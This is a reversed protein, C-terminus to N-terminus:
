STIALIFKAAVRDFERKKFVYKVFMMIIKIVILGAVLIVFFFLIRWANDQFFTVIKNWFEQWDM